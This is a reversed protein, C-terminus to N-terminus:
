AINKFTSTIQRNIYSKNKDKTNDGFAAKFM